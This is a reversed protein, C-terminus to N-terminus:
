KAAAIHREEIILEQICDPLECFVQEIYPAFDDLVENPNRVDSEGPADAVRNELHSIVNSPVPRDIAGGINHVTPTQHWASLEAGQQNVIVYGPACVQNNKYTDFYRQICPRVPEECVSIGMDRALVNDPDSVVPLGNLGWDSASTRLAEQSQATVIFFTGGLAELRPLQERWLNVDHRCLVCWDGMEFILGTLPRSRYEGSWWDLPDRPILIAPDKLSPREAPVKSAASEREAM